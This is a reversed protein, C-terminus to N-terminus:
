IFFFGVQLAFVNMVISLFVYLMYGQIRCSLTEKGVYMGYDGAFMHINDILLILSFGFIGIYSNTFLLISVDGNNILSKILFGSMITSVLLTFGASAM